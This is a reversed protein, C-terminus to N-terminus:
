FSKFRKRNTYFLEMFSNGIINSKIKKYYSKNNLKSLKAGSCITWLERRYKKPTDSLLLAKLIQIDKKTM